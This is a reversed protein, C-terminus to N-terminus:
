GVDLSVLYKELETRRTKAVEANKEMEVRLKEVQSEQDNLKKLLRQYYDTNRDVTRMNERIRTQENTIENVGEQLRQVEAEATAIARRMEGAKELATRVEPSLEGGRVLVELFNLDTDLIAYFESDVREQKVTLTSAKGAPSNVEFRHVKDTSEVPKGSTVTWGPQLPHEIVVTKDKAAKSTIDYRAESVTKRRAELVGKVIKASQMSSNTSVPVVDVVTELDVGYSLLRSQGPPVDDMLADGGYAGGDIVTVPGALLHNATSNKLRAGSLPHRGLVAANYIAVPSLEVAEAVIPLMASSQRAITVNPVTYQFLEGIRTGTAAAQISATADLQEQERVLGPMPAAVSAPMSMESRRDMAKNMSGRGAAQVQGFLSQTEGGGEYERPRLNAFREIEVTPRNAYIPEYLNQVFSIPRGSVLSLQVDEWDNDTQNEVIAWGQLSPKEGMVLRYSTKWIPTQVVYGMRVRRDGTGTFGIDVTKTQDRKADALAGLAAVLEAQLQADQLSFSRVEELLVTQLGSATLLMVVPKDVVVDGVARKQTETSVITGALQKDAVELVVGAGRLQQLLDQQTPSDSLDIAFSGLKRSLPDQSPYSVTGVKGGDLDQLVLSKLIDNIQETRFTLQTSSDGRVTGEHQFYGVGSSYLMVQKVPVDSGVRMAVVPVAGVPKAAQGIVPLSVALAALVLGASIV